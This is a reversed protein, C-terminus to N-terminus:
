KKFTQQYYEEADIPVGGYLYSHGNNQGHKYADKIQQEHMRGAQQFKAHIELSTGMGISKGINPFNTELWEVASQEAMHKNKLHKTTINM